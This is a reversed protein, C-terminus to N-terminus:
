PRGDGEGFEFEPPLPPMGSSLEDILNGYRALRSDIDIEGNRAAQAALFLWLHAALLDRRSYEKDFRSRFALHEYAGFLNLAILDGRVQSPHPYKSQERDLDALIRDVTAELGGKIARQSEDDVDTGEVRTVALAASGLEFVRSHGYLNWLLREAPDDTEAQVGDVYRISWSMLATVCEALLRRKSPFHAYFVTATIGLRRMITTVHTNKYGKTAFEHAALALIQNHMREHEQAVLDVGEENALDVRPQLEREMEVLSLGQRKLDAIKRLM